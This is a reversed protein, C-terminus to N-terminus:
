DCKSYVPAAHIAAVLLVLAGHVALGLLAHAVHRRLLLRVGLLPPVGLLSAVPLLDRLTDGCLLESGGGPRYSM